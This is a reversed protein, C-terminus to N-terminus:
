WRSKGQERRRCIGSSSFQLHFLYSSLPKSLSPRVCASTKLWWAIMDFSKLALEVLEDVDAVRKAGEIMHNLLDDPNVHTPVEAPIKPLSSTSDVLTEKEDDTEGIHTRDTLSSDSLDSM